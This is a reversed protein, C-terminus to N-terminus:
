NRQWLQRIREPFWQFERKLEVKENVGIYRWLWYELFNCEVFKWHEKNPIEVIDFSESPELTITIRGVGNTNIFYKPMM